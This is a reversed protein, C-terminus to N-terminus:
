ARALVEDAQRLDVTDRGETFADRTAKLQVLWDPSRRALSCLARLELSSACRQQAGREACAAAQADGEEARNSAILLEGQM